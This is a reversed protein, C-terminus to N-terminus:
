GEVTVDCTLYKPSQQKVLLRQTQIDSENDEDEYCVREREKLSVVCSAIILPFLIILQIFCGTTPLSAFSVFYNHILIFINCSLRLLTHPLIILPLSLKRIHRKGNKWTSSEQLTIKGEM